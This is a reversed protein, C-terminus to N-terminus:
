KSPTSTGTAEFKLKYTGSVRNCYNFTAPKAAPFAGLTESAITRVMGEYKGTGGLMEGTVKPGEFAFKALTKDGDKDVAQCYNVGSWTKGDLTAGSGVCRFSTMDLFGGPEASRNTGLSEWNAASRTESFEIATMTSVGCSTVDYKGETPLNVKQQAAAPLTVAMTVVPILAFVRLM